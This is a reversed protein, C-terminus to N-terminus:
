AEGPPGGSSGGPAGQPYHRGREQGPARPVALAPVFVRAVDGWVRGLEQGPPRPAAQGAAPTVAPESM